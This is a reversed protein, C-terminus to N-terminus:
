SEKRPTIFHDIQSTINYNNCKVYKLIKGEPPKNHM